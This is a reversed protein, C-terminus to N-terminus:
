STERGARPAGSRDAIRGALREYGLGYRDALTQAYSLGDAPKRVVRFTRKAPEGPVVTSVMSVTAEGLSALEDVFTVCVCLLDLDIIRRLVRTGIFAADRLTTSTFVENMVVVSSATARGLIDHIRVLDDRLKGKLDGPDEGREFHTFVEDCLLLRAERGPVPCGLAALHHLQGFARAFTTKGGQNPGSVVLVREAGDLRFDNPVVAANEEVLRAALALDFVGRGMVQKSRDDVAPHCFALGAAGLRDVLRRYAVYFQAERDFTAVTEDLFDRHREGYGDLEAFVDPFLLAVRDLVAEEVRDLEVRDRFDGRHDGSEGQRFREFAALVESGYDEEGDYRAVKVRGATITMCYRVAALRERLGGSEAVLGTFAGSEAYGTLADRFRRLARSGLRADDLTNVLGSVAAHYADVATLLWSDRQHRHRLRGAQALHRRTERMRRAFADVGDAVAPDELDRFVEQRFAVADVSRLRAHFLPALDFEERGATLRGVLQDLNLDAFCGPEGRAAAAAAEDPDTFLISSFAM